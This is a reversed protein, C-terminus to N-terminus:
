SKRRFALALLLVVPIKTQWLLTGYVVRELVLGLVVMFALLLLPLRRLM